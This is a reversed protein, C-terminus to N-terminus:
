VGNTLEEAFAKAENWGEIIKVNVGRRVLQFITHRQLESVRGGVAKFEVFWVVGQPTVILRDPVGPNQPSTFKWTLFGHKRLTHCFHAEIGSETM